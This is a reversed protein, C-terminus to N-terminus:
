DEIQLELLDFQQVGEIRDIDWPKVTDVTVIIRGEQDEWKKLVECDIGGEQPYHSNADLYKDAVVPIKEQVIHQKGWADTFSCEVFGPQHDSISKDISIKISPM